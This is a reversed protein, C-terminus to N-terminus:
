IREAAAPAAESAATKSASEDAENVTKIASVGERMAKKDITNKKWKKGAKLVGFTDSFRQM